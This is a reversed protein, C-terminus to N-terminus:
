CTIPTTILPLAPQAARKLSSESRMHEHVKLLTHERAAVRCTYGHQTRQSQTIRARHIIAPPQPQAKSCPDVFWCPWVCRSAVRCRVADRPDIPRMPHMALGVYPRANHRARTAGRHSRNAAKHEQPREPWHLMPQKRRAPVPREANIAVTYPAALIRPVTRPRAICYTLARAHLFTLFHHTCPQL